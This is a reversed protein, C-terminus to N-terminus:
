EWENYQLDVERVYDHLAKVLKTILYRLRPNDCMSNIQMVNGTINGITLDRMPPLRAAIGGPGGSAWKAKTRNALEKLVSVSIPNISGTSLSM